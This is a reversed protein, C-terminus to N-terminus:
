AMVEREPSAGIAHEHLPVSPLRLTAICGRSPGNELSLEGGHQRALGRAVVLGIGHGEDKTTFRGSFVKESAGEALGSGEDVVRIAAGEADREVEVQVRAGRPTADIANQVLNIVIQRVKRPDCRLHAAANEPEARPAELRVGKQAAAAEHLAVVDTVLDVLDVREEDLPM